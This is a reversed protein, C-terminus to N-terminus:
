QSKPSKSLTFNVLEGLYTRFQLPTWQSFPWYLFFPIRKTQKTKKKKLLVAPVYEALLM